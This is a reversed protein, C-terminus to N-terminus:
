GMMMLTLVWRNRECTKKTRTDLSAALKCGVEGRKKRRWRLM